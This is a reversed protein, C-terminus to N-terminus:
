ASRLWELGAPMSSTTRRLRRWFELREPTDVEVGVEAFHNIDHPGGPAPLRSQKAHNDPIRLGSRPETVTSPMLYRSDLQRGRKGVEPQILDSKHKLIKMKERAQGSGLIDRNRQNQPFRIPVFRDACAILYRSITPSFARASRGGTFSLPPLLLADGDRAGDDTSGSMRIM